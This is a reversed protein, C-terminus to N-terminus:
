RWLDPEIRREEALFRQMERAEAETWSGIFEDFDPNVRPRKPRSLGLAEELLRLVAKNLSVGGEEARERIAREVAPPLKRLTIPRSASAKIQMMDHNM